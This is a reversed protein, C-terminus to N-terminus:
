DEFAAWFPNGLGALTGTSNTSSVSFKHAPPRGDSHAQGECHRDLASRGLGGTRATSELPSWVCCSCLDRQWQCELRGATEGEAEPAAARAAKIAYAAAGLRTRLSTHSPGPRALRTRPTGHQGVYTQSRAWQM